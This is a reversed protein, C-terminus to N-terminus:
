GAADAIEIRHIMAQMGVLRWGGKAKAFTLVCRSAEGVAHLCVHRRDVVRMQRGVAAASPAKALAADAGSRVVRLAGPSIMRDLAFESPGGEVDLARGRALDAVQRRLDERVAPRDIQAEVAVRDRAIAAALLRSASEAAAKPPQGGSCSTLALAASALLIMNRIVGRGDGRARTM